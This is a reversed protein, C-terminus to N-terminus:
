ESRYEIRLQQIRTTIQVRLEDPAPECQCARLVKARLAREAAYIDDCPACEVLHTTVQVYHTQDIENDIYLYMLSRVEVCPTEHPNGCSM